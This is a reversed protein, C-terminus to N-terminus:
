CTKIQLPTPRDISQLRLQKATKKTQIRVQFLEQKALLKQAQLPHMHSQVPRSDIYCSAPAQCSKQRPKTLCPQAPPKALTKKAKKTTKDQNTYPTTKQSKATARTPNSKRQL